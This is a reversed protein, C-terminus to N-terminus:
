ESIWQIETEANGFIARHHHSYGDSHCEHRAPEGYGRSGVRSFTTRARHRGDALPEKTQIDVLCGDMKESPIVREHKAGQSQGFYSESNNLM